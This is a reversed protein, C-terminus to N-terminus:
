KRLLAYAVAGAILLAVIALWVLKSSGGSPMPPPQISPTPGLRFITLGQARFWAEAERLFEDYPERQFPLNAEFRREHLLELRDYERLEVEKERVKLMGFVIPQGMAEKAVLRLTQHAQAGDLTSAAEPALMDPAFGGVRAHGFAKVFDTSLDNAERAYRTFLEEKSLRAMVQM